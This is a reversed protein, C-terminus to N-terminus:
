PTNPTSTKVQKALTLTDFTRDCDNCYHHSNVEHEKLAQKDELWGHCLQCEYEYDKFIHEGEMHFNLEGQTPFTEGCGEHTCMFTSHVGAHEQSNDQSLALPAGAHEETDKSVHEEEVHANMEERALFTEGCGKYTCGFTLPAGPHEETIHEKLDGEEQFECNCLGCYVVDHDDKEHREPAEENEFREKCGEWTCMFPLRAEPHKLARHRNLDGEDNFKWKCLGCIVSGHADAGHKVRAENDDFSEECGEWTCRVMLRAGPHEEEFHEELRELDGFEWDCLACTVLDHDVVEHRDLVKQNEFWEECFDCQVMGEEMFHNKATM